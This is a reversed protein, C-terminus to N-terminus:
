CASAYPLDKVYDLWETATLGGGLRCAEPVPDRLIGLTRDMSWLSVYAGDATALIPRDRGFVTGDFRGRMTALLAAEGTPPVSWLEVQDAGSLALVSGDASFAAARIRMGGGPILLSDAGTGPRWRRVGDTTWYAVTGGDASVTAGSGFGAYPRAAIRRPHAPDHLDWLTLAEDDATGTSMVVLEHRGRVFSASVAEPMAMSSIKCAKAGAPTSYVALGDGSRVAALRADPDRDLVAAGGPEGANEAVPGAIARPRAPDGIDWSAVVPRTGNSSEVAMTGGAAVDLSVVPGSQKVSAIRAPALPSVARWLMATQTVGLSTTLLTGGGPTFTMSTVSEGNGDRSGTRIPMSPDRVDWLTVHKDDDAAALLGGDPAFALTAANRADPPYVLRRPRARDTLDYLWVPDDGADLAIAVLTGAPNIVIDKVAGLGDYSAIVRPEARGAGSWVTVTDGTALLYLGRAGNVAAAAAYDGPATVQWLRRPHRPDRVDWGAIAAGASSVLRGPGAFEVLRGDGPGTATSSLRRPAGLDHVDWLQLRKGIVALTRGDPSFAVDHVFPDGTQITGALATGGWFTLTGGTGALAVVRGDPRYRAVVVPRHAPIEGAYGTGIADTLNARTTEGATLAAATTALRLSLAPDTRRTDRSQTVLNEAVATRAVRLAAAADEREAARERLVIRAPVGVALALVCVAATVRIMRRAARRARVGARAAYAARRVEPDVPEATLLRELLEAATPRRAPDKELASAVLDRLGGSMGTLNPPQTLIQGATAMPSDGDFPLHGTAAYTVVVGWAFVDAAPTVPIRRGTDFREPAMYALTGVVHEPRTLASTPQTPQAIGFDIVKPTGLKFLVNAPKLDRHIIGAGHIAVLATAVGIAVGHVNAASLPGEDRVIGALSPGDVYEVVLYPTEHDPDADLVEATCFPPVRRAREVESRFRARFESDHSNESRIVKIAVQEADRGRALYVTGM